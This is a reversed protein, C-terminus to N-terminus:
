RNLMRRIRITHRKEDFGEVYEADEEGWFSDQEIKLDYEVNSTTVSNSLYLMPRRFLTISSPTVGGDNEPLKTLLSQTTTFLCDVRFKSGGYLILKDILTRQEVPVSGYIQPFDYVVLFCKMMTESNDKQINNKIFARLEELINVADSASIIIFIKEYQGCEAVQQLIMDSFSKKSDDDQGVITLVSTESDRYNGVVGTGDLALGLTIGNGEVSISGYPIHEPVEAPQDDFIMACRKKMEQGLKILENVQLAIDDVNWPQATQFVLPRKENSSSTCLGRGQITIMPTNYSLGLIERVDNKESMRLVFRMEARVNDLLKYLDQQKCASIILYIGNAPGFKLLNAIIDVINSSINSDLSKKVEGVDDIVVLIEPLKEGTTQRYSFIDQVEYSIFKQQRIKVESQLQNLIKVCENPQMHANVVNAVHPFTRMCSLTGAGGDIFYMRVREPSYLHVISIAATILFNTKGSTPGGCVIASGYQAFNLETFYQSQQAPDDTFGVIAKMDVLTNEYLDEEGPKIKLIDYISLNKELPPLWVKHATPINMKKAVQCICEVAADLETYDPKEAKVTHANGNLEIIATPMANESKHTEVDYAAGAYYSQFCNLTGQARVRLFARGPIKPLHAADPVGIMERSDQNDAVRACLQFASNARIEPSIASAPNQTSLIVYMGLSGGTAYLSNALKIFDPHTDKIRAFEDLIIMLFPMPETVQHNHYKQHYDMINTSGTLTLLNQRRISESKLAACYRLEFDQGTEDPGTNSIEGVLHPLTKIPDILSTGKFDFLVFNVEEPSFKIAMQIIWNQILETKGARTTGAVLGMPGDHKEHIDFILEKGDNTIGLPVAMSDVAHYNRWSDEIKMDKPEIIKRGKFLSIFPPLGKGEKGNRLRIPSMTRVASELDERVLMSTGFKVSKNQESTPYVIGQLENKGNPKVEIVHRCGFPISGESSILTTLGVASTAPFLREVNTIRSLHKPSTIVLIYFPSPHSANYEEVERQRCEALNAFYNLVDEIGAENDSILRLNGNVDWIHPLFRFFSWDKEEEKSYVIAIKLDEPSHLTSLSIIIQQLMSVRYQRSGVIAISNNQLFSFTSPVGDIHRYKDAIDVAKALLPNVDNEFRGPRAVEIPCSFEMQGIGLSIKLFEDSHLDRSWLIAERCRIINMCAAVDPNAQCLAKRNKKTIRDLEIEIDNLYRKYLEERDNSKKTYKKKQLYYSIAASIVGVLQMPLMMLMNAMGRMATLVLTILLLAAPAALVQVWNISPTEGIDPMKEIVYPEKRLQMSVFEHREYWPYDATKTPYIGKKEAYSKYSVIKDDKQENNLINVNGTKVSIPNGDLDSMTFFNRDLEKLSSVKEVTEKVNTKKIPIIDSEEDDLNPASFFGDMGAM